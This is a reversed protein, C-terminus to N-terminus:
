SRMTNSIKKLRVGFIKLRKVGGFGLNYLGKIHTKSYVVLKSIKGKPGVSTFEFVMADSTEELEYKESGM